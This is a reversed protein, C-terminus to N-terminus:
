LASFAPHYVVEGRRGQLSGRELECVMFAPNPGRKAYYLEFDWAPEFGFRPYYSPHGLVVVVRERARL